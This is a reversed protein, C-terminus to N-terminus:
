ALGTMWKPLSAEQNGRTTEITFSNRIVNLIWTQKWKCEDGDTTYSADSHSGWDPVCARGLHRSKQHTQAQQEKIHEASHIQQRPTPKSDLCHNVKLVQMKHIQPKASHSLSLAKCTGPLCDIVLSGVGGNGM